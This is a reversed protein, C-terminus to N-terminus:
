ERPVIVLNAQAFGPALGSTHGAFSGDRCALRVALGSSGPASLKDRSALSSGGSTAATTAAASGAGAGATAAMTAAAAAGSEGSDSPAARAAPSAARRRKGAVGASASAAAASQASSRIAASAAHASAIPAAAPARHEAAPVEAAGGGGGGLKYLRRAESLAAGCQAELDSETWLSRADSLLGTAADFRVGEHELMIKKREISPSGSSAADGYFGGISAGHAHASVVRHCPVTPAFPNRHLASGVAQSSACDLARALAGYTIVRGAPVLSTVEYVARAFATLQSARWSPFAAPASASAM